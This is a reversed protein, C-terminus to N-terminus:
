PLTEPFPPLPQWARPFVDDLAAYLAPAAAILNLNATGESDPVNNVSTAIAAFELWGSASVGYWQGIDGIPNEILPAVRWPGPTWPTKTPNTM